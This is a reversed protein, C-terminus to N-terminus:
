GRLYGKRKWSKNFATLSDYNNAHVASHGSMKQYWYHEDFTNYTSVYTNKGFVKKEVGLKILAATDISNQYEIFEISKVYKEKDIKQNTALSFLQNFQPTKLANHLEFILSAIIEEESNHSSLNIFIIRRDPDWCAGFKVSCENKAVSLRLAGQKLIDCILKNGEKLNRIARLSNKLEPSYQVSVYQETTKPTSYLPLAQLTGLLFYLTLQIKM